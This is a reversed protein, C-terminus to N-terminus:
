GRAKRWGAQIAERESCFWREGKRENIGTQEYFRQGVVHFIRTGSSSINGKIPCNRDPPIRGKARTKRYQSPSQVRSAHLGRDNVAAGKEDLDYAMSYKRYAFALGDSVLMRGMDKGGVTCTAVARGYKDTDVRTCTARKGQFRARVQENVWEGCAWVTNQESTCTQGKEPADIGHIRVRVDGVDITDGDIVTIRGSFEAWGFSPLSIFLALACFRLM